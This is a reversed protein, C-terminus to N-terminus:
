GGGRRTLAHAILVVAATLGIVIFSILVGDIFLDTLTTM